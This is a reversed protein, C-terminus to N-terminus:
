AMAHGLRQTLGDHIDAMIAAIDYQFRWEPYHSRFKRVDSVWWMHDGIRNYSYTM